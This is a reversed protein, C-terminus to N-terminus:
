IGRHRARGRAGDFHRRPREKGGVWAVSPLAADYLYGDYAPYGDPDVKYGRNVSPDWVAKGFREGMLEVVRNLVAAQIGIRKTRTYNACHRQLSAEPHDSLMANELLGRHAERADYVHPQVRINSGSNHDSYRAWFSSVWYSHTDMNRAEADTQASTPAAACLLLAFAAAFIHKTYKM